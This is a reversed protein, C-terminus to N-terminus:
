KYCFKCWMLLMSFKDVKLLRERLQKDFDIKAVNLLIDRLNKSKSIALNIPEEVFGRHTVKLQQGISLASSVEVVSQLDVHRHNIRQFKVSVPRVHLRKTASRHLWMELCKNHVLRSGIAEIQLRKNLLM